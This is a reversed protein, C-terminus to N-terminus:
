RVIANVAQQILMTRPDVQYLYGDGYIYRANPRLGYNARLDAPIQNYSWRNGYNMPLVQGTSYLKKLQGPPICGNNKMALGPPCGGRGYGYLTGKGHNEHGMAAHNSHGQGHVQGHGQGQGQGKGPKAGASASFALASAGLIILTHKIM